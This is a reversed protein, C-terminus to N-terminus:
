RWVDLRFTGNYPTVAFHSPEPVRRKITDAIAKTEAALDRVMWGCFSYTQATGAAVAAVLADLSSRKAMPFQDQVAQAIEDM